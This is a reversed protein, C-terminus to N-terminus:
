RRQCMFDVVYAVLGATEEGVPRIWAEPLAYGYTGTDRLHVAYSYKVGQTVYMWDLINGPASNVGTLAMGDKMPTGHVLRVAAAAGHAAELVDEEDPPMVSCSYSYPTSVMQGYSRLDVFARVDELQGFYAALAWVEPAEYPRTGPYWSACPGENPSSSPQWSFGWNRNMDLGRCEPHGSHMRNKYVRWFRDVEWTYQYGDPNPTPIVYFDFHDLLHTISSPEHADALLAHALYLATSTAIWERAHQTGMVVFGPKRKLKDKKKRLQPRAIRAAVIARGEASVGVTDLRVTHPHALALAALFADTEALPHYRAHFSANALASSLDLDPPAAGESAPPGLTHQLQPPSFPAQPGAAPPLQLALALAPLVALRASLVLKVM